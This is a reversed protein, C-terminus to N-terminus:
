RLVPTAPGSSKGAGDTDFDVSFPGLGVKKVLLGQFIAVILIGVLAIIFM